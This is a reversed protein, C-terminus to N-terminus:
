RAASGPGRRAPSDPDGARFPTSPPTELDFASGGGTWPVAGQVFEVVKPAQIM